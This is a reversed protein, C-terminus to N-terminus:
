PLTWEPMHISFVEKLQQARTNHGMLGLSTSEVTRSTLRAGTDKHRLAWALVPASRLQHLMIM